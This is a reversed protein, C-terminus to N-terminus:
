QERMAVFFDVVLAMLLGVTLVLVLRPARLIFHYLDCSQWSDIPERLIKYMLSDKFQLLDMNEGM